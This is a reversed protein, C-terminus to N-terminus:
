NVRELYTEFLKVYITDLLLLVSMYLFYNQLKFDEAIMTKLSPLNHQYSRTNHACRNRERYVYKVFIENLAMGCTPRTEVLALNTQKTLLQTDSMIWKDNIGTVMALYEDYSKRFNNVLLSNDFLQQTTNRWDNLIQNKLADDIVFAEDYKKIENLLDNYVMCKDKYDSCESYRSREFREYRYDYDRCAM